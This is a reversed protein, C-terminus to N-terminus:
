PAERIVPLIEGGRQLIAVKAHMGTTSLAIDLAERPEGAYLLGLKETETRTIGRSVLIGKARERIVRGVHVLHAAATLKKIIGSRVKEDIERFTQYGEELVEPHSPSVGETCPSVLIVVGGQKVALESAYIGKAALWLESDFPHSDAIVIDAEGPLQASYVQASKKAGVRYAMLPDGAVTAVLNGNGDQITNIIWKLGAKLAVEEIEKKVPNEAKGLIERGSFMAALWHTKGTTAEGCIGPQIINGGGSFGSVRHPVIQGIGITFDAWQVLRNVAVPTGGATDGLYVLRDKDWWEHNLVVYQRCIERGLKTEMEDNTMPRHTGLAILIRINYPSIGGKHLEGMLRPLIKGVSTTRTYDDVVILVNKLRGVAMSLPKSGVPNLFAEDILTEEDDKVEVVSPLFIGLLNEEPITLTKMNDYPFTVQAV